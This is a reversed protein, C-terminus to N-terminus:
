AVVEKDYQEVSPDDKHSVLVPQGQGEDSPLSPIPSKDLRDKQGLQPGVMWSGGLNLLGYHEDSTGPYMEFEAVRDRYDYTETDSQNIVAVTVLYTGSIFPLGPIRYRILGHGEIFPIDVGGFRTNPGCLHAGHQHYIALGFIPKEIREKAEYHLVISMEEQYRFATRFIEEQDRFEVQTIRVRGTGWRYRNNLKDESQEVVDESETEESESAADAATTVAQEADELAGAEGSAEETQKSMEEELRREEEQRRREEEREMHFAQYAMAVDIATGEERVVGEEIWLLRDCITQMTYLDHSVILMTGGRRRFESISRMCKRQFSLDGVALVEDVLMIDPDTHIAVSFGLRVYMGSSYHKIPTDIFDGLEAYEVIRDLRKDMEKRTMGYISGNLYINERGTLEPHFGAGLELLSSVRGHVAIDGSTPPLIGTVLKLLTSKGSGNVGIVGICDGPYVALSINRLPWFQEAPEHRGQFIKIFSEQFSRRKERHLEFSRSVNSLEILPRNKIVKSTRVITM